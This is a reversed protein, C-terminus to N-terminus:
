RGQWKRKVLHVVLGGIVGGIAGDVLSGWLGSGKSAASALFILSMVIFAWIEARREDYDILDLLGM